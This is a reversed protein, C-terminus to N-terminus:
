EQNKLKIYRKSRMEGYTSLRGNVIMQKLLDRNRTRKLGILNGIEELKYEQRDEMKQYIEDMQIM